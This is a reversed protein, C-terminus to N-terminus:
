ELVYSQSSGVIFPILRTTASSDKVAKIFRTGPRKTVGGQPLVVMNVLTECGNSYQAMQTRGKLLPSLEGSSFSNQTHTLKPM